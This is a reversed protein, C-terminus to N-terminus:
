YWPNLARDNRRSPAAGKPHLGDGQELVVWQTDEASLTARLDRCRVSDAGYATKIAQCGRRVAAAEDLSTACSGLTVATLLTAVGLKM